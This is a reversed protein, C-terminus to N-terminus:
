TFFKWRVWPHLHFPSNADRIRLWFFTVFRLNRALIISQSQAAIAIKKLVSQSQPAIAFFAFFNVDRGTIYPQHFRSRRRVPNDTRRVRSEPHQNNNIRSCNFNGDSTEMRHDHIHLPSASVIGHGSCTENNNGSDEFLQDECRGFSSGNSNTYDSTFKAKVRRVLPRCRGLHVSQQGCTPLLWTKFNGVRDLKITSRRVYTSPASGLTECNHRDSFCYATAKWPCSRLIKRLVWHYVWCAWCSLAQWRTRQLRLERSDAALRKRNNRWIKERCSKRRLREKWSPSYVELM